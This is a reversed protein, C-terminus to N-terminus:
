AHGLRLQFRRWSDSLLQGTKVLALSMSNDCTKMAGIHSAEVGSFGRKFHYVGPNAEPDIGGLDYYRVGRERLSRILTWHLLYAGKLKMGEENTAGLLYIASEGIAACVVGALPKGEQQCIMVRMRQNEPLSEQIRGFEEISVTKKFKKREWMQAYLECFSGYENMGEGEIVTLNNREAANLQNRWKKDLNKRLEDLAPELDLVLTRYRASSLGCESDYQSFAAQFADARTSGSFANPLIELYLGRKGVYEERLAAALNKAVEPDITKGRTQFLPGWRLYAIGMRLNAPRIIRLQAIGAVEGDRKLVMHSLNHKGWRVAGYSWTQYINADAFRGMLESWDSETVSDIEVKYGPIKMGYIGQL